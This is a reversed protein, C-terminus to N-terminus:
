IKIKNLGDSDVDTTMLLIHPEEEVLEISM